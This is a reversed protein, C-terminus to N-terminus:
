QSLKNMLYIVASVKLCTYIVWTFTVDKAVDFYFCFVDLLPKALYYVINLVAYLRESPDRMVEPLRTQRVKRLRDKVPQYRERFRMVYGPTQLSM